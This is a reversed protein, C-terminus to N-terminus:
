LSKLLKWKSLKRKNCEIACKKWKGEELVTIEEEVLKDYFTRWVYLIIKNIDVNKTYKDNLFSRFDNLNDQIVATVYETEYVGLLNSITCKLWTIRNDEMIIIISIVISDITLAVVITRSYTTTTATTNVDNFNIFYQM